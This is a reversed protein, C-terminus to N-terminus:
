APTEPKLVEGILKQSKRTRVFVREGVNLMHDSDLVQTEEFDFGETEKTRVCVGGLIICRRAEARSAFVCNKDEMLFDILKIAM